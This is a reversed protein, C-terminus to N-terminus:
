KVMISKRALVIRGNNQVYVIEYEGPEAPLTLNLPSGEQTYTYTIDDNGGGGPKIAAIYDSPYDPGEWTVRITDGAAASEPIDLTATVAPTTLSERALVIRGNNQVYVIEYEGPEAPLTLNLPPGEQTYPYTIDDNGGGGPKIAAIYDNPQDPGEWTVRITDAAPASNPIDLRAAYKVIIPLTLSRTNAPNLEGKAYAEDTIRLVDVDKIGKTLQVSLVGEPSDSEYLVDGSGGDRVTWILGEDITPGSKQDTASLTVEHTEPKPQPADVPKGPAEAKSIKDLALRLENADEALFFQGGTNDALCQLQQEANGAEAEPLGFGVTHVTLNVGLENLKEAAQCPNAHCTEEGDSVLIVTAERETYKLKEAAQIVADTMPTMGKPNISEVADRIAKRDLGVPVLMEIDNCDGKRNHGYALLGMRQNEPLNDMLESVVERATVIKNIGDIQGWMSGSADFVLISDIPTHANDANQALTSGSLTFLFATLLVGLSQLM